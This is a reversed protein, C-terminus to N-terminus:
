EEDSFRAGQRIYIYKRILFDAEDNTLPNLFYETTGSAFVAKKFDEDHRDAVVIVPFHRFERRLRFLIAPLKHLDPFSYLFLIDPEPHRKLEMFLDKENGIYETMVMKSTRFPEPVNIEKNEELNAILVRSLKKEVLRPWTNKVIYGPIRFMFCTGQYPKSSLWIEGELMKVLEKAISLGLGTGRYLQDDVAKGKRFREFITHQEKPHIGIGSDQVFFLVSNSNEPYYGFEIFGTETFKVANNLLNSLIQMLRSKESFLVINSVSPKQYRVEVKKGARVFQLKYYESLRELMDDLEFESKHLHVVGRQIDSLHLLNDIMAILHNGSERIYEYYKEKRGSPIDPDCILESFGFIANMPTRIEHSINEIFETKLKESEEAKRLAEQLNRFNLKQQTINILAGAVFRPKGSIEPVPSARLEFWNDHSQIETFVKEGSFAQELYATIIQRAAIDFSLEHLSKGLAREPVLGLKTSENGQLLIFNLKEDVLFVTTNPLHSALANYWQKNENITKIILDKKRIELWVLYFIVLSSITVFFWGKITQLLTITHPDAVFHELLKDTSLIWIVSLLFYIVAVRVAPRFKGIPTALLDTHNSLKM